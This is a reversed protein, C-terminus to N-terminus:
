HPLGVTELVRKTSHGSNETISGTAASFAESGISHCRFPGTDVLVHCRKRLCCVSLSWTLKISDLPTTLFRISILSYDAEILDLSLHALVSFSTFTMGWGGCFANLHSQKHNNSVLSPSLNLLAPNEGQVQFLLVSPENTSVPFFGFCVIKDLETSKM